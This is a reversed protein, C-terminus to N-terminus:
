MSANRCDIIVQATAVSVGADLLFRCTCVHGGYSAFRARWVLFVHCTVGHWVHVHLVRFMECSRM